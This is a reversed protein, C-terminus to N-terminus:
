IITGGITFFMLTFLYYIPRRLLRTLNCLMLVFLFLISVAGVYVLMFALSMFEMGVLSLVLGTEFFLLILLLIANVPTVVSLITMTTVLLLTVEVLFYYSLWCVNSRNVMGSGAICLMLDCCQYNSLFGFRHECWGNAIKFCRWVKLWNRMGFFSGFASM